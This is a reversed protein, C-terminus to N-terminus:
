AVPNAASPTVTFTLFSEQSRRNGPNREPWGNITAHILDSYSFWFSFGQFRIRDLPTPQNSISFGYTFPFSIHKVYRLLFHIPVAALQGEFSATHGPLGISGHQGGIAFGRDQARHHAFAGGALAEIKEGKGDVIYFFGIRRALNWASKELAFATGTFLFRQSRAKDVPRDPGQKMVIVVTFGLNDARNEAMIHFIIRIDDGHDACRGREANGPQRKHTGDAAGADAVPIAIIQKIGRNIIKGSTLEIEHHGAGLFTNQHHFGLGLFQGLVDHQAGDSEAM